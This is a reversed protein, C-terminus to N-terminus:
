FLTFSVDLWHRLSLSPTDDDIRASPKVLTINKIKRSRDQCIRIFVYIEGDFVWDTLKFGFPPSFV